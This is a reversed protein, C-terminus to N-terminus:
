ADWSSLWRGVVWARFCSFGSCQSARAGCSSLLGWKSCSSFARACCHLGMAALFLTNKFKLFLFKSNDEMMIEGCLWRAPCDTTRTLCIYCLGQQKVPSSVWRYAQKRLVHGGDEKAAGGRGERHKPWLDM